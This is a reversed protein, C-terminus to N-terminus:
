TALLYINRTFYHNISFVAALQQETGELQVLVQRATVSDGENVLVAEVVGASSVSLLATKEPVIEGAASVLPPLNPLPPSTTDAAPAGSPKPLSCAGLMLALITFIIWRITNKTKM